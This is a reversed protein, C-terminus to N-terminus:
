AAEEVSGSWRWRAVPDIPHPRPDPVARLQRRRSSSSCLSRTIITLVVGDRALACVGPRDACYVFRLGPAPVVDARMWHRPTPRVRGLSIFRGLALRAELRSVHRDVRENWRTVAHSSLSLPAM